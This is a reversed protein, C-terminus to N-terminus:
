SLANFVSKKAKGRGYISSIIIVRGASGTRRRKHFHLIKEIINWDPGRQNFAKKLSVNLRKEGNGKQCLSPTFREVRREGTKSKKEYFNKWAAM